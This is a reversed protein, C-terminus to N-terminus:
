TCTRLNDKQDVMTESHGILMTPAKFLSGTAAEPITNKPSGTVTPDTDAMVVPKKAPITYATAFFLWDLASLALFPSATIGMDLRLAHNTIHGGKQKSRKDHKNM